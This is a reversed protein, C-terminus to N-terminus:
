YSSHKNLLNQLNINFFVGFVCMVPGKHTHSVRESPICRDNKNAVPWWSAQM